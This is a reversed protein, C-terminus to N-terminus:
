SFTVMLGIKGNAMLGIKGRATCPAPTTLITPGKVERMKLSETKKRTGAESM